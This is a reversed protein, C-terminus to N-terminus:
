YVVVNRASHPIYQGDEGPELTHNVVDPAAMFINRFIQPMHGNADREVWTKLANRLVRSGMSHALVNIRKYCPDKKQQKNKRWRDFKGLLRAFALGSCDAARQDDWYDGLFSIISDDDCPWILPVVHVIPEVDDDPHPNILEQLKKARPFIDAEGTNNFGHIYFLIQTKQPLAKLRAFFKKSGIETYDECDNRECFFMNQAASTEQLDFSIKRKLRTRNSQKPTRNTVFLM